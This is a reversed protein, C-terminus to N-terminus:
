PMAAMAAARDKHITFMRDLRTMRLLEHTEPRMNFLVFVGKAAKAKNHLTVLMGIGVSTILGVASLDVALRWNTKEAAAALDSTLVTTERQGISNCVVVAVTAHKAGPRPPTEEFTVFSADHM